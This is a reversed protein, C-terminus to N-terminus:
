IHKERVRKKEKAMEDEEYMKVFAFYNYRFFFFFVSFFVASGNIRIIWRFEILYAGSRYIAGIGLHNREEYIAKAAQTKKRGGEM